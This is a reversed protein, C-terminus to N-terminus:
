ADAMNSDPARKARNMIPKQSYQRVSAMNVGAASHRPMDLGAQIATMLTVNMPPAMAQSMTLAGAGPEDAGSV